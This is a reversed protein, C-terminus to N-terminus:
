KWITVTMIWGFDLVLQWMTEQFSSLCPAYIQRILFFLIFNSLLWKNGKRRDENTNLRKEIEVTPETRKLKPVITKEKQSFIIINKKSCEAQWNKSSSLSFTFSLIASSLCCCESDTREEKQFLIASILFKIRCDSISQNTLDLPVKWLLLIIHTWLQAIDAVTEIWFSNVSLSSFIGSSFFLFVMGCFLLLIVISGMHMSSFPSFPMSSFCCYYRSSHCIAFISWIFSSYWELFFSLFVYWCSLLFSVFISRQRQKHTMNAKSEASVEIPILFVFLSFTPLASTLGDCCISFHKKSHM